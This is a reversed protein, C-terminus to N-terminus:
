TRMAAPVLIKKPLIGKLFKDLKQLSLMNCINAVTRLLKYTSFIYAKDNSMFKDLMITYNQGVPTILIDDTEYYSCKLKIVISNDTGNLMNCFNVQLEYCVMSYVFNYEEGPKSFSGINTLKPSTIEFIGDKYPMAALAELLHSVTSPVFSVTLRAYLEKYETDSIFM